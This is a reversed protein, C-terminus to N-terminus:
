PRGSARRAPASRPWRRRASPSAPLPPRPRRAPLHDQRGREPRPRRDPGPRRLRPRPSEFAGYRELRLEDVRMAPRRGARPPVLALEVASGPASADRVRTASNPRARAGAPVDQACSTRPPVAIWPTRRPDGTRGLRRQGRARAPTRRRDRRDAAESAPTPRHRWRSASSGRPARAPDGAHGRPGGESRHGGSRRARAHLPTEGRPVLRLRWTAGGPRRDGAAAVVAELVPLIRARVDDERDVAGTLDVTERQGLPRRRPRPARPRRRRGRAVRVLTAGKPGPRGRVSRGQLNGLTSSTPASAAPGRRAHVHGLAWYDYGHNVGAARASCPRMAPTTAGRQGRLATHLVGVNVYTPHPAPSRRPAIHRDVEGRQGFSSATSRRRALDHDLTLTHRASPPRVDSARQRRAGLKAFCPNAADHNGAVLYVPVGAERLRTTGALFRLGRATTAAPRRRLRRRGPDVFAAASRRDALDVLREFARRSAQEVRSALDVTRGSLGVLPSDLHLDAAHLFKFEDM